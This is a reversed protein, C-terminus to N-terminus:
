KEKVESPINTPYDRRRINRYPVVTHRPLAEAISTIERKLYDCVRAREEAMPNDPDFRIPKGLYARKLRPAIYLPVFQLAIGTKKYYIRGLDVFGEQFDYLIQNYPKDEEPFIIVNAGNELIRVTERYTSLLRTDHYVPITHANNFICVALPTILHSLIRYFWQVRKPKQSWFDNFAYEAVEDWKMMQGACWIYKPDPFYLEGTVPGHMQTHNGVIVSAERPLQDLGEIKMKPFALWVLWKLVRYTRTTKKEEM